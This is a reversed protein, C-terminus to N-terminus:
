RTCVNLTLHNTDDKDDKVDVNLDFAEQNQVSRLRQDTHKTNYMVNLQPNCTCVDPSMYLLDTHNLCWTVLVMVGSSHECSFVCM